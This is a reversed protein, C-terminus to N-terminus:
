LWSGSQADVNRQTRACFGLTHEVHMHLVEPDAFFLPHSLMLTLTETVSRTPHPYCYSANHPLLFSALFSTVKSVLEAM